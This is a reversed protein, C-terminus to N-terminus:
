TIISLPLFFIVLCIGHPDGRGFYFALLLVLPLYVRGVRGGKGREAMHTGRTARIHGRRGVLCIKYTWLM